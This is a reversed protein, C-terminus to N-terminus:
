IKKGGGEEKTTAREEWGVFIFEDGASANEEHNSRSPVQFLPVQYLTLLCEEEGTCEPIEANL